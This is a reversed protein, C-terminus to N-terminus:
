APGSMRPTVVYEQGRRTDFGILGGAVASTRVVAGNSNVDLPISTRIQCHRGLESRIAARSLKGAKWAIDVEFGGRARIREIKGGPWADPLAPLFRMQENHSQFLMETVPAAAADLEGRDLERLAMEANQLRAWMNTTFEPFGGAGHETGGGGATASNGSRRQLSIACAKALDPTDEVTIQNGPYLGWLHSIHRHGPEAEEYDELWEQLQGYKGIQLPPLRDLMSKWLTRKDDDVGLVEAGRICHTLVDHILELDMTAAICLSPIPVSVGSGVFTNEPSQSPVPVLKGRFRSNPRPDEVLYDEYFLAVEKIFPYLRQRLFNEDGHFEYQWWYHEALWAASGLWEDWGPEVKLCRAWADNTLPIFIGRCGYLNRAAERAPEVCRDMYEFLPLACEALNATQAFFYNGNLGDDHHLDANWGARLLEDWIGTLNAPAGGPRSSSILIQRNQQYRLAVLQPDNPAKRYAAMREDTPLHSRDPGDFQVSVRNFLKGYSARHREALASYRSAANVRELQTATLKRPDPSEQDTALAIAIVVEDAGEITFEPRGVRRVTRAGGTGADEESWLAVARAPNVRAQGKGGVTFVQASVAFALKELFTGEFGIRNGAAWPRLTCDKDPVRFLDVMGSIAGPRDASLRVLILDDAYSAFVERTYRVGGHRYTVRVIATSLDLSRRYDTAGTHAPLAINLDGAPQFPDPGFDRYREEDPKCISQSGLLKNAASNAEALKGEFFLKRIAPLNQSVVPNKLGGLKWKRWLWTHNLGIREEDPIGFLTAGLRGNGVKLGQEWTTAPQRYWVTLAPNESPGRGPQAPAANDLAMAATTAGLIQSFTRRNM